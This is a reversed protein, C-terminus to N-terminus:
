DDFSKLCMGFRMLTKEVADGDDLGAVIACGSHGAIVRDRICM